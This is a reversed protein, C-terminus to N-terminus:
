EYFRALIGKGANIIGCCISKQSLKRFSNSTFAFFKWSQRDLRQVAFEHGQLDAPAECEDEEHDDQPNAEVAAVVPRASGHSRQHGAM